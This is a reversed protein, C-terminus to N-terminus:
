QGGLQAGAQESNYERSARVLPPPACVPPVFGQCSQEVGQGLVQALAERCLARRAIRLVPRESAPIVLGMHAGYLVRGAGPLGEIAGHKLPNRPHKHTQGAPCLEGLYSLTPM